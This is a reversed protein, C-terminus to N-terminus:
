ERGGRRGRIYKRVQLTDDTAPVPEPVPAPPQPADAETTAAEPAGEQTGAEEEAVVVAKEEEEVQLEQFRLM